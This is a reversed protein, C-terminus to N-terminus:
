RQRCRPLAGGKLLAKYLTERRTVELDSKPEPWPEPLLWVRSWFRGRHLLWRLWAIGYRIVSVTRHSRGSVATLSVGAGQAASSM